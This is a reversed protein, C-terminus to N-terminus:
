FKFGKSKNKKNLMDDFHQYEENSKAQKYIDDKLIADEVKKTYNKYNFKEKDYGYAGLDAMAEKLFDEFVKKKITEARDTSKQQERSERSAREKEQQKEKETEYDHYRTWAEYEEDSWKDYDDYSKEKANKQYTDKQQYTNKQYDSSKQSKSSNSSSSSNNYTNNKGAIENQYRYDYSKRKSATDVL